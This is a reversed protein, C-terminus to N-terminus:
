VYKKPSTWTIHLLHIQIHQMSAFDDKFTSLDLGAHAYVDTQNISM